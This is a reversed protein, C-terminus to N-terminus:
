AFEVHRIEFRAGGEASATVAIDWGHAEVLREVISLGFGTGDTEESYGPELLREPAEESLGVGDDAVYFGEDLSGVTVTVDGDNHRVANEFLNQLLQQLRTPDALVPREIEVSLTSEGADVTQWCTEAVRALEVPRTKGIDDGQRALELVETILRQSREVAEQATEVHPNDVGEDERALQLKGNAVSLPNRLDHSIVSAFEDLRENQRQLRDERDVVDTVDRYLWLDGGGDPLAVPQYSRSFVRGDAHRIRENEVPERAGLIEDIRDVFAQPKAFQDAAEAALTACDAGVVDEPAGPIELLDFLRQNAALLTRSEDEVLIGVPLSDILTSLITNTRELETEYEVRESIDRAIIVFREADGITVKRLHVDVPMTSGDKRRFQGRVQERDGEELTAWMQKAQEATLTEDIEWVKMSTLETVDYGTQACLQPNPNIINGEEDHLNVMDPSRDYLAELQEVAEERQREQARRDTIDRFLSIVAIMEGDDNTVIRNFWEVTIREGDGRVNEDINHFGGKAKALQDTVHDVNEYSEETVLKEWTHGLLEAEDYGLIEQGRENVRVIEFTSDYELVGLPSQDILLSLRQQSREIEARARYQEVANLVRNALVTYESSDGGQKKLYDTVGASIAESAITESGKGTYLIFPLSDDIERVDNLFELGNQDPIDYDSVICDPPDVEIRELAGSASTATSTTIREDERELFAAATEAFGPEDDVHLVHISGRM